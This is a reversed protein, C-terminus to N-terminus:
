ILDNRTARFFRIYKLLGSNNLYEIFEKPLPPGFWVSKQIQEFGFSVLEIRLWDRYRRKKEPIDFIIILKKPQLKLKSKPPSVYKRVESNKANLVERGFSTLTWGVKSKELLGDRKMRSLTSRMTNDFLKREKRNPSIEDFLIDCIIRTGRKPHDSLIYLINDVLSMYILFYNFTILDM